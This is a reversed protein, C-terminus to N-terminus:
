SYTGTGQTPFTLVVGGHHQEEAATELAAIAAWPDGNPWPGPPPPPRLPRDFRELQLPLTVRLPRRAFVRRM